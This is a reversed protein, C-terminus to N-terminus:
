LKINLLNIQTNLAGPVFLNPTVSIAPIGPKFKGNKSNVVANGLNSTKTQPLTNYLLVSTIGPIILPGIILSSRVNVGAVTALLIAGITVAVGVYAGQVAFSRKGSPNYKQGVLHMIRGALLPTAIASALTTISFVTKLTGNKKSIAIVTMHGLGYTAMIGASLVGELALFELAYGKWPSAQALQSGLPKLSMDSVTRQMEATPHLRIQANVPAQFLQCIFLIGIITLFLKKM